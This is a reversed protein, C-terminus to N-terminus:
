AGALAQEKGLYNDPAVASLSHSGLSPCAISAVRELLSLAKYVIAVLVTIVAKVMEVNAAMPAAEITVSM